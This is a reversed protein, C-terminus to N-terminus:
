PPPLTSSPLMHFMNIDAYWNIHHFSFLLYVLDYKQWKALTSFSLVNSVVQSHREYLSLFRAMAFTLNNLRFSAKLSGTSTRTILWCSKALEYTACRLFAAREEVGRIIVGDTVCLRGHTVCVRGHCWMGCVCECVCGSVCLHRLSSSLSTLRPRPMIWIAPMDPCIRM